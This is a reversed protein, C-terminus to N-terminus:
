TIKLFTGKKENLRKIMVKGSCLCNIRGIIDIPKDTPILTKELVKGFCEKTESSYKKVEIYYGGKRIPTMWYCVNSETIKITIKDKVKVLKVIASTFNTETEVPSIRTILGTISSSIDNLLSPSKFIFVSSLILCFIILFVVIKKDVM